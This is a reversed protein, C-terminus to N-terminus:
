EIKDLNNDINKKEEVISKNTFEMDSKVTDM